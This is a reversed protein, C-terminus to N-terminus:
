LFVNKLNLTLSAERVRNFVLKLHKLHEEWTNSFIIIDDLYAKSCYELCKLLTTALRSFTAPANRSDLHCTDGNFHGTPTVFALVPISTYVLPVKWCGRTMDVKTIYNARGLKDVLVKARPLPFM